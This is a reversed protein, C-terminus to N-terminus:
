RPHHEKIHKIREETIIVEDTKLVHKYKGLQERNLRGIYQM